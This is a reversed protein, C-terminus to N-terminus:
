TGFGLPPASVPLFKAAELARKMGGREFRWTLTAVACTLGVVDGALIFALAGLRGVVAALESLGAGFFPFTGAERHM